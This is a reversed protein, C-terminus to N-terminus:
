ISSLSNRLAKAVWLFVFMSAEVLQQFLSVSAFRQVVPLITSSADEKRLLRAFHGCGEVALLRVSDQDAVAPLIVRDLSAFNTTKLPAPCVVAEPRSGATALSWGPIAKNNSVVAIEVIYIQKKREFKKKSQLASTAYRQGEM